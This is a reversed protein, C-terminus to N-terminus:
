KNSGGRLHGREWCIDCCCRRAGCQAACDVMHGAGNIASRSRNNTTSSHSIGINITDVMHGAGHFCLVRQEADCDGLGHAALAV